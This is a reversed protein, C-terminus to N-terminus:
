ESILEFVMKKIMPKRRHQKKYYWGVINGEQDNEPLPPIVIIMVGKSMYKLIRKDMPHLKKKNSPHSHWQWVIDVDQNKKFKRMNYLKSKQYRMWSSPKKHKKAKKINIDPNLTFRKCIGFNDRREAFLWGHIIFPYEEATKQTIEQFLPEPILYRFDDARSNSIKIVRKIIILCFM